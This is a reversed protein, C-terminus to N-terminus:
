RHINSGQSAKLSTQEVRTVLAKLSTQEVRTISGAIDSQGKRFEVENPLCRDLGINSLYGVAPDSSTTQSFPIRVLM